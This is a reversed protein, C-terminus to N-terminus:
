TLDKKLTLLNDHKEEKKFVKHIILVSFNPYTLDKKLTLLDDDTEEKKFVKHIILVHM